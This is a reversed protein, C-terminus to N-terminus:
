KKEEVYVSIKDSEKTFMEKNLKVIEMESPIIAPKFIKKIIKDGEKIFINVDKFPKRVRFKLSLSDKVDDIYIYQPVVYGIGNGPEVEYVHGQHTM